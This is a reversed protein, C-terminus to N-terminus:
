DTILTIAGTYFQIFPDESMISLEMGNYDTPAGGTDGSNPKIIAPNDKTGQQIMRGNNDLVLAIWGKFPNDILFDALNPDIGAISFVSNIKVGSVDSDEPGEITSRRKDKTAELKFFGKGAPFTHATDIVSRYVRVWEMTALVYKYFLGNSQVYAIDADAPAAIADRATIDAVDHDATDQSLTPATMIATFADVDALYINQKIGGANGGKLRSRTIDRASAM